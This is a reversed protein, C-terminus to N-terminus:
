CVWYEKTGDPNFVTRGLICGPKGDKKHFEKLAQTESHYFTLWNVGSLFQSELGYYPYNSIHDTQESETVQRM